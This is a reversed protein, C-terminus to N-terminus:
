PITHDESIFSWPLITDNLQTIFFLLNCYEIPSTSPFSSLSEDFPNVPVFPMPSEKERREEEEEKKEKANELSPLDDAYDSHLYPEIQDM